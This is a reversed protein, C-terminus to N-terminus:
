SANRSSLHDDYGVDIDFQVIICNPQIEETKKTGQKKPYSITLYIEQNVARVLVSIVLKHAGEVEYTIFTVKSWDFELVEGSLNDPWFDRTVPFASAVM